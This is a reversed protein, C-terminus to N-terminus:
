LSNHGRGGPSAAKGTFEFSAPKIINEGGSFGDGLLNKTNLLVVFLRVLM